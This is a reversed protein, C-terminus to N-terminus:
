PRGQAASFQYLNPKLVSPISNTTASITGTQESPTSPAPQDLATTEINSASSTLLLPTEDLDGDLPDLSDQDEEVEEVVEDISNNSIIM